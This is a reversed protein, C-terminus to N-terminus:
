ATRPRQGGVSELQLVRQRFRWSSVPGATTFAVLATGRHQLELDDIRGAAFDAELQRLRRRFRLRSRRNLVVHSSYIRCGLFDMGHRTRNIYPEPKLALRVEDNLYVKIGRLHDMLASASDSWLVSDDMYRVYGKVRLTEKVFRDLGDLFFNALHQSSLSGIPLGRGPQTAYAAIIREFLTLLREDKLRSRLRVRLVDHPISDFYKRIDLKLFFAFRGAFGFARELAAVRGRGKRCAFTDDILGREFVPECVNMIAHHLVRERFCPATIRREKPDFITFQRMLGVPFADERLAKAMWTLRDDLHETFARADPRHRKGRLAKHVALRLNAREVIQDFLNGMRKM